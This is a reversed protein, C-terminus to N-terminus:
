REDNPLNEVSSIALYGHAAAALGAAGAGIVIVDADM